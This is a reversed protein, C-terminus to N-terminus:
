FNYGASIGVGGTSAVGGVSFRGLSRLYGAGWMSGGFIYLTNKYRAPTSYEVSWERLYLGAHIRNSQTTIWGPLTRYKNLEDVYFQLKQPDAYVIRDQTRVQVITEPKIIIPDTGDQQCASWFVGGLFAVIVICPVIIYRVQEGAM